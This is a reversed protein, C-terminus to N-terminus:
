KVLVLECRCQIAWVGEDGGSVVLAFVTVLFGNASLSM